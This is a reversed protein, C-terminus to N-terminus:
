KAELLLRETEQMTEALRRQNEEARQRQKEAEKTTEILWHKLLGGAIAVPWVTFMIQMM